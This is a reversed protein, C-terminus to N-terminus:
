FLSNNIVFKTYNLFTTVDGLQGTGSSVIIYISLSEVASAYAKYAVSRKLRM